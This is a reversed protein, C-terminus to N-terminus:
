FGIPFFISCYGKQRCIILIYTIHTYRRFYVQQLLPQFNILRLLYMLSNIIQNLIIYNIKNIDKEIINVLYISSLPENNYVKIHYM